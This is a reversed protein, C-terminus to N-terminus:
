LLMNTIDNSIKSTLWKREVSRRIKYLVDQKNAYKSNKLQFGFM